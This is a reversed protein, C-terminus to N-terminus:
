RGSTVAPTQDPDDRGRGSSTGFVFPSGCWSSIAMHPPGLRWRVQAYDPLTSLRDCLHQTPRSCCRYDGWANAGDTVTTGVYQVLTTAGEHCAVDSRGDGDYDGIVLAGSCATGIPDGLMGNEAWVYRFGGRPQNPPVYGLDRYEGRGMVVYFAGSALEHCYFDAFGDANFDGTGFDVSSPSGACWPDNAGLWPTIAANYPDVFGGARASGMSLAVYARGGFVDFCWADALGDGDFDALGFQDDPHPCFSDQTRPRGEQWRELGHFGLGESRSFARVVWTYGNFAGHGRGDHCVLDDRGDGDVDGVALTAGRGSCALNSIWHAGGHSANTPIFASAGNSLAVDVTGTGSHFCYSDKRRDGDFDGLGFVDNPADCWRVHADGGGTWPTARNPIPHAVGDLRMAAVYTTGSIAGTGRCFFDSIFDDDSASMGTVDDTSTPLPRNFRRLVGAVLSTFAPESDSFKGHGDQVQADLAATFNISNGGLVAGGHPKGTYTIGYAPTGDPYLVVSDDLASAARALFVTSEDDSTGNSPPADAEWGFAFQKTKEKPDGVEFDSGSGNNWGFVEDKRLGARRLAWHSAGGWGARFYATVERNFSNNNISTGIVSSTPLTLEFHDSDCRQYMRRDPADAKRTRMQGCGPADGCPPQPGVYDVAWQGTGGSMKLLHGGRRLYGDIATRMGDTWYESHGQVVLTRVRSADLSRVVADDSDAIMSFALSPDATAQRYLWDLGEREAPVTHLAGLGNLHTKTQCGDVGCWLDRYTVDIGPDASPNPRLVNVITGWRLAGDAGCFPPVRWTDPAGPYDYMPGLQPNPYPLPPKCAGWDTGYVPEYYSHGSKPDGNFAPGLGPAYAMNASTASLPAYPWANYAQWTNTSAVVIISTASPSAPRVVFPIWFRHAFREQVGLASADFGRFTLEIAYLGSTFGVSARQDATLGLGPTDHWRAGCHSADLPIPQADVTADASWVLTGPTSTPKASDLRYYAATVLPANKGILRGSAFVRIDDSPGYSLRDVYGELYETAAYDVTEFGAQGLSPCPFGDIAEDVEDGPELTTPRSCALPGVAGFTALLGGGARLWGM